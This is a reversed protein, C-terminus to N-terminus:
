HRTGAAGPSTRAVRVYEKERVALLGEALNRRRGPVGAALDLIAAVHDEQPAVHLAILGLRAVRGAVARPLSALEAAPLTFGDPVEELLERAAAESQRALEDADTRLLAASRAIPHKVERGLAREMAPLVTHRIANRPIGLDRNTPDIRPRLRLARVFAEVEERTVDILPRVMPGEAPRIGAVSGLGGGRTLALLVTEAQDDLTHGTAARTAPADRLVGALAGLRVARAWAEVSEGRDPRDEATRLHFPLRLREAQRRAYAADKGSDPRLRHDFHFVELRIRFLRRLRHLAHLLCTSDPGGSLAVLVRDGPMLMHHERVTATVRELVRAVAPPRRAAM